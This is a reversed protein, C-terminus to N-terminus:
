KAALFLFKVRREIEYEPDINEAGLAWQNATATLASLILPVLVDVELSAKLQGKDIGDYILEALYSTIDADLQSEVERLVSHHPSIKCVARFLVENKRAQKFLAVFVNIVNQETSELRKKRSEKLGEATIANMYHVLILEKTAFYNFFTGKAIGAKFCIKSVSTEEFGLETFLSISTEYLHLRLENKQKSRFSM